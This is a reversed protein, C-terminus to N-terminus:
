GHCVEIVGLYLDLKRENDLLKTTKELHKRIEILRDFPFHKKGEVVLKGDRLEYGKAVVSIGSEHIFKDGDKQWGELQIVILKRIGILIPQVFREDMESIAQSISDAKILRLIEERVEEQRFKPIPDNDAGKKPVVRGVFSVSGKAKRATTRGRNTLRIKRHLRERVSKPIAM